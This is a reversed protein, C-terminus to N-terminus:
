VDDHVNAIFTDLECALAKIALDDFDNLYIPAM